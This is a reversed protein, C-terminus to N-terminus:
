ADKDEEIMKKLRRLEKAGIKKEEILSLVLRETSGEFFRRVLHTLASDRAERRGSLPEYVFARGKKSHRVHGKQELIRLTTIVTSYALSVDGPLSEVVEAVSASGKEWLIEMLRLEAETLHASKTRAM